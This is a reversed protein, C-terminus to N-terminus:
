PAEHPKRPSYADTAPYGSGPKMPCRGQAAEDIIWKIVEVGKPGVGQMRDWRREGFDAIDGLTVTHWAGRGYRADYESTSLPAFCLWEIKYGANKSIPNDPWEIAPAPITRWEIM